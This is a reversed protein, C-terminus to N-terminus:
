PSVHLLAGSCWTGSASITRLFYTGDTLAITPIVLTSSGAVWSSRIVVRGLADMLTIELNAHDTLRELNLTTSFPMPHVSFQPRSSEGIHDWNQCYAADSSVCVQDVFAYAQAWTGITDQVTPWSQSNEFFNTIAIYRYASDPTYWGSITGWTATDSLVTTMGVADSNPYLYSQWDTPMDVFFKVGPGRAKWRASNAVSSGFGGCAVKLSIYVPVGVVLPDILESTIIERYYPSPPSCTALGMYAEGEAPYQYGMSNLPYGCITGGACGNFYDASMTYPSDWGVVYMWQGFNSPCITYNEFGGNAM